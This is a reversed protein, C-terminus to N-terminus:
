ILLLDDLISINKSLYCAPPVHRILFTVLGFHNM